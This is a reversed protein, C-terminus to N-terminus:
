ADAPRRRRRPPDKRSTGSVPHVGVERACLEPLRRLLWATAPGPALDPRHVISLALTWEEDGWAEPRIRVLRGHRLDQEVMHEPMNGWGLGAALLAHKTALDVIRWTRPSLV